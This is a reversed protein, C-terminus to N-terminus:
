FGSFCQWFLLRLYVLLRCRRLGAKLGMEFFLVSAAKGLLPYIKGFMDGLTEVGLVISRKGLVLLPFHFDDVILLPPPSEM